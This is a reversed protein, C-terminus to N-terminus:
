LPPSAILLHELLLNLCVHGMQAIQQAPNCPHFLCRVTPQVFLDPTSIDEEEPDRCPPALNIILSAHSQWLQLGTVSYLRGAAARSHGQLMSGGGGGGPPPSGWIM